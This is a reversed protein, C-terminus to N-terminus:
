LIQDRGIKQGVVVYEVEVIRNQLEPKHVGEISTIIGVPRGRSTRLRGDSHSRGLEAGTALFLCFDILEQNFNVQEKNDLVILGIDGLNRLSAVSYNGQHDGLRHLEIFRMAGTTKGHQSAGIHTVIFRGSFYERIYPFLGEAMAVFWKMEEVRTSQTEVILEEFLKLGSEPAEKSYRLPEGKPHEVWFFDQNKGNSITEIAQSSVLLINGGEIPVYLSNGDSSLASFRRLKMKGTEQSGYVQLRQIASQAAPTLISVQCVDLMLRAVERNNRDFDLTIRRGNLILHLSGDEDSIFLGKKDRIYNKLDLEYISARRENIPIRISSKDDNNKTTSKRAM